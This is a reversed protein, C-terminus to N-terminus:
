RLDLLYNRAVLRVDGVSSESEVATARDEYRLPQEVAM